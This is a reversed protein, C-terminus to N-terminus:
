KVIPKKGWISALISGTVNMLPGFIAAALGVTAAKGMQVALASGLGANQMGVELSLTRCDTESMGLLKAAYFALVYGLLNHILVALLLLGGVTALNSQGSATVVTVIYAIGAMSFYPLVVQIKKIFAPVAKNLILGVVIPLIVIKVMDWMMSWFEVDVLEGGLLKMLLPTLVPAILTAVTTITVSLAINARAILAMVNSALGSPSSGILIIGAAIEAPFDFLKTLSFGILPMILFQFSIGIGVKKPTRLVELFDDPSITTGMGFMIVQLMPIILTTLKFGQIEVFYQPFNYAIAVLVLILITYGYNKM